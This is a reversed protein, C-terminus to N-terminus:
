LTRLRISRFQVRDGHDQLGIRGEQGTGYAKWANFKSAAVKAKWDASGLEYSVVKQGNLWHEVQNGRVLLRAQNWEGAPRVVGRPPAYLGYAAGASTLPNRGDAHHADDLVQMEPGSYYIPDASELVRYLVGSNGGQPVKWELALEFDRYADTTVIDGGPGARTIAGDAVEWGAVPADPKGYGRWGQMTRGDFLLTWGAAQEEATLVNPAGPQADTAPAPAAATTDGMATTRDPTPTATAVSDTTASDAAAATGKGCSAAGALLAALVAAGHHGHLRRTRM